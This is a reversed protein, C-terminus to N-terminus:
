QGIKHWGGLISEGPILSGLSEYWNFTEGSECHFQRGGPIEEEKWKLGQTTLYSRFEDLSASEAMM